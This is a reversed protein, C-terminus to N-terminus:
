LYKRIGEVTSRVMNNVNSKFAKKQEDYVGLKSFFAIRKDEESVLYLVSNCTRVCMHYDDFGRHNFMDGETYGHEKIHKECMAYLKQYIREAKTLRASM